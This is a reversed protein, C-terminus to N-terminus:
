VWQYACSSYFAKVRASYARWVNMLEFRYSHDGNGKLQQSLFESALKGSYLATLLGQSSLPDFSLAADGCALWGDGHFPELRAGGAEMPTLIRSSKMEPFLRSAYRTRNWARQWELVDRLRAANGPTVHIGAVALGSPLYACYWWGDETAEIVSRQSRPQPATDESYAYVAVLVSDRIRRAGLSRALVSRRGTADIVWRTSARTGDDLELFSCEKRRDIRRVHASRFVAGSSKAAARLDADFHARDLRWSPGDLSYIADSEVLDPSEWSSLSGHIKEHAGSAEPTNLGLSRLLRCAAGPLVDGVKVKLKTEDVRDVVLVRLGEKALLHATVAGSPGSGALVVDWTMM